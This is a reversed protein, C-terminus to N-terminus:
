RPNTLSPVVPDESESGEPMSERSSGSMSASGDHQFLSNPNSKTETVTHYVSTSDQILDSMSQVVEEPRTKKKLVM